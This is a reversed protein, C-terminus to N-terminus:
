LIYFFRMSMTSLSGSVGGGAAMNDARERSVGNQEYVTFFQPARSSNPYHTFEIMRQWGAISPSILKGEAVIVLPTQEYAEIWM